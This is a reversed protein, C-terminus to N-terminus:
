APSPNEARPLVDALGMFALLDELERSANRLLIRGGLRRAALQLRALADVTSADIPGLGGVDCIVPGRELQPRLRESLRAVDAGALAGHIVLVGPRVLELEKRNTRRLVAETPL